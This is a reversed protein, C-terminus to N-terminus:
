LRQPYAWSFHVGGPGSDLGPEEKKKKKKEVTAFDKTEDTYLKKM